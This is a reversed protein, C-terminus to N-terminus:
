KSRKGYTTHIRWRLVPQLRREGYRELVKQTLLPHALVRLHQAPEGPSSISVLCVVPNNPWIHKTESLAIASPNNWHPSMETYTVGNSFNVPKFLEPLLMTARAAQSISCDKGSADSDSPVVQPLSDKMEDDLKNDHSPKDKIYDCFCNISSNFNWSVRANWTQDVADEACRDRAMAILRKRLAHMVLMLHNKRSRHFVTRWKM